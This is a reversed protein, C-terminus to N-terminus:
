EGAVSIPHAKQRWASFPFGLPAQFNEIGRYSHGLNEFLNNSQLRLRPRDNVPLRSRTRRKGGPPFHSALHLRSTKSVATPTASTRLSITAKCAFAHGIM